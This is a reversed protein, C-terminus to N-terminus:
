EDASVNVRTIESSGDRFIAQGGENNRVSCNTLDIESADVAYIGGASNDNISCNVLTAESASCYLGGGQAAGRNHHISCNAVSLESKALLAIGGNENGNISCNAVSIEADSANIGGGQAGGGHNGSISCNALSLGSKDVVRIAGGTNNNLSVNALSLSGGSAFIVGGHDGASNEAIECNAISVESGIAAIAGGPGQARNERIMCNALSVASNACFVAGGQRATAEGTARGYEIICDALASADADVFRIGAWGTPNAVLDTTFRIRDQESRRLKLRRPYKVQASLEGNVTFSYHGTFYVTVGAGIELVQGVPVTVDGDIVYPSNARTWNGFVGGAVVRTSDAGAPLAWCVALLLGLGMRQKM